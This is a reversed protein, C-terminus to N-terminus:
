RTQSGRKGQCEGNVADVGARERGRERGGESERMWVVALVVAAAAVAELM